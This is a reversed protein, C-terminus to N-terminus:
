VDTGERQIDETFTKVMKDLPISGTYSDIQAKIWDRSFTFQFEEKELPITPFNFIEGSPVYYTLPEKLEYNTMLFRMLDIGTAGSGIVGIKEAGTLKGLVEHMPYPNHIYNEQGILQYYDAYPPHGISLFVADYFTDQWGKATKLQYIYNGSKTDTVPQKTEADFVNLNVVEYPHHVVQKHNFYPAFRETLYRGYKPRSVLGEFNYPEEYKEHLWEVYDNPISADYSLVEPDVNLMISEDDYDYPLGVGLAERPEFVDIRDEKKFFDHNICTKVI